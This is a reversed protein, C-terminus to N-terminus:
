MSIDVVVKTQLIADVRVMLQDFQAGTIHGRGRIWFLIDDHALSWDTGTAKSKLFRIAVDRNQAVEM